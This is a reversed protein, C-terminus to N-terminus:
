PAAELDFALFAARHAQVFEQYEAETMRSPMMAACPTEIDVTHTAARVYACVARLKAVQEPPGGEQEWIMAELEAIRATLENATLKSLDEPPTSAELKELRRLMPKM